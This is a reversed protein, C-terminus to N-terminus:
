EESVKISLNYRKKMYDARLKAIEQNLRHPDQKNKEVVDKTKNVWDKEILDSDHAAQPTVVVDSPGQAASQQNTQTTNDQQTVAQGVQQDQPTPPPSPQQPPPLTQHDDQEQM